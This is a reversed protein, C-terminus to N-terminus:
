TNIVQNGQEALQSQQEITPQNPLTNIASNPDSVEDTLPERVTLYEDPPYDDFHPVNTRPAEKELLTTQISLEVMMPLQLNKDIEWSAEDPVTLGISNIIIPQNKYLNGITMKVYPPINIGFNGVEKIQSPYGMGYLYNIRQWMPKMEKKSSAYVRFNFSVSRTLGNYVYVKDARGLYRVDSWEPTLSDSISKLTSRFFAVKNNVIDHFVFKIIDRLDENKNLDESFNLVGQLNLKDRRIDDTDDGRIGVRYIGMNYRTFDTITEGNIKSKNRQPDIVNFRDDNSTLQRLNYFVPKTPNDGFRDEMQQNLKEIFKENNSHVPNRNLTLINKSDGKQPTSNSLKGDIMSEFFRKMRSNQESESQIIKKEYPLIDRDNSPISSEVNKSLSKAPEFLSDNSYVNKNQINSFRINLWFRNLDNYFETHKRGLNGKTSTFISSDEWRKWFRVIFSNNTDSLENLFKKYSKNGFIGIDGSRITITESDFHNLSVKATEESSYINYNFKVDASNLVSGNYYKFLPSRLDSPFTLTDLFNNKNLTKILLQDYRDQDSRYVLNTTKDKVVNDPQKASFSKGFVSNFFKGLLNPNESSGPNLNSRALTATNGRILGYSSQKQDINPGVPLIGVETGVTSKPEGQTQGFLSLIGGLVSNDSIHKTVRPLLGLSTPRITSILHSTPDVINTEDHPAHQHLLQQKLLWTVGNTSTTFKGIRIADRLASGIPFARSDYKKFNREFDSDGPSTWVFPQRLGLNDTFGGADVYVNRSNYIDVISSM